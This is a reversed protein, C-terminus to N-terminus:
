ALAKWRVHILVAFLAIVGVTEISSHLVRGYLNRGVVDFITLSTVAFSSVVLVRWAPALDLWRDVLLAIVPTGLLLVYDWGQPSLVPVLLLLLGLELYDPASVRQRWRMVLAVGTLSLLGTTAALQTALPGPGLWKAWMTAFSINEGFLLTESTTSTVTQFWGALLHLNGSWGYFVAPLLLGAAIVAASVGVTGVGYAFLFWPLVAIAYPKVFVALGVLAGAVLRRGNQAALLGTILLWGLLVNTQGNTLEKVVFKGILLATVWGIVQLSHRREPLLLMSRHVFGILLGISLAFWIGKAMEPPVRAFPIMAVAFAPLYKFQYHLDETRYLPAADLARQGATQYVEFDVYDRKMRAVVFLSAALAATLLLM